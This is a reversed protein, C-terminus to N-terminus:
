LTPVSTLPTQPEEELAAPVGSDASSPARLLGTEVMFIASRRVQRQDALFAELSSPINERGGFTKARLADFRECDMLVHAVTQPAEGCQCVDTDNVRISYLYAGLRIKGTRMQILVSSLNKTLGNYLQISKNDLRPLLQRLTSGHRSAPWERKWQEKAKNKAWRSITSMPPKMPYTPARPGSGGDRRWGTAEKALRDAEENGPIGSHAVIWHFTVRGQMEKLAEIIRRVLDQGSAQRPKRLTTLAGQSDVFVDIQRGTAEKAIELALALGVLEAIPVTYEKDTGLYAQKQTQNQPCTASAGVHGNIGSGDTYIRWHHPTIAICKEHNIMSDLPNKEIYIQPPRWWPPIPFPHRTELDQPDIGTNLLFGEEALDLPSRWAQNQRSHHARKGAIHPYIPSSAIRAMSTTTLLEARYKMPMLQLEANFADKAVTRFGGSIAKAANKQISDLLRIQRNYRGKSGRLNPALWASCAYLAIPAVCATYVRRLDRTTLGWTSGGLASIAQLRKTTAASVHELHIELSLHRDLLVGLYKAAPKAKVVYEELTVSPGHDTGPTGAAARAAERAEERRSPPTFHVLGFKKPAWLSAHTNAWRSAKGYATELKRCNEEVTRSCALANIDDIYGFANTPEEDIEEVLDANYFIYLVPSMPSGQPIGTATPARERTYSGVILTTARDELCSLIWAVYTINIRRKRLNHALRAHSVHDYAGTVDMLLLSAVQGREWAAYITELMAHIAMETSRGRRGGYHNDPLLNLSEALESLRAAIIGELVKGITSLLAIPRYSKPDSYDDKGPKRIAVTKSERFHRPCHGSFLSCNFIYTLIPALTEAALQLTRNLIGDPGPATAPKAARITAIVEEENIPPAEAAEPYVYNEVDSLDAEPAPPFFMLALLEAKEERSQYVTGDLTKLPPMYSEYRSGRSKTWRALGWVKPMGDSAAEVRKRHADRRFRQILRKSKRLAKRYEAVVEEPAAIRHKTQYNSIRRHLRRAELQLKRCEQTFGPTAYKSYRIWPTSTDISKQIAAVIRETIGDIHAPSATKYHTIMDPQESQLSIRSSHILGALEQQVTSIFKAQDMLGWNRRPPPTALQLNLRLETEVPQHDSIGALEEAVRIHRIQDRLAWSTLCLDITSGAGDVGPEAPRTVMGLPTIVALPIQEIMQKLEAAERPTHRVTSTPDTWLPDHMNFDGVIIHEKPGPDREAEQLARRLERIGPVEANAPENYVNHIYIRPSEKNVRIYITLVDRSSHVINSELINRRVYTCVRPRQDAPVKPWALMFVRATETPYHTTSLYGNIWPEQIAIITYKTIEPDRLMPAMALDVSHRVNWQLIRTATATGLRENPAAEGATGPAM